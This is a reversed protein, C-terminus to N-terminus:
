CFPRGFPRLCNQRWFWYGWNQKDPRLIYSFLNKKLYSSIYMLGIPLVVQEAINKNKSIWADNADILLLKYPKM